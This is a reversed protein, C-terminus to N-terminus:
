YYSLNPLIEGLWDRYQKASPHLGDGAVLSPTKLGERSVTTINVRAIGYEGAVKKNIRNYADIEHSIKRDGKGFATYAYDPISLMFVRAADQKVLELAKDIIQRLEPEYTNIDIGQYQNNVGIQISVLNYTMKSDLRDEIGGLLDATTWGTTAIYDPDEAKIGKARLVSVFQHPWRDELQVSEGITYSDGLALMHVEKSIAIGQGLIQINMAMCTILLLINRM